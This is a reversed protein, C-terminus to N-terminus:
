PGMNIQAHLNMWCSVQTGLKVILRDSNLSWVMSRSESFGVAVWADATGTLYFDLFDPNGMNTDIGVFVTCNPPFCGRPSSFTLRYDAGVESQLPLLPMSLARIIHPLSVYQLHSMWHHLPPNLPLCHLSPNLPLCHLSPTPRHLLFLLHQYSTILLFWKSVVLAANRAIFYTSFRVVITYRNFLVCWHDNCACNQCWAM